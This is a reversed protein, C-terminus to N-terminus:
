KKQELVKPDEVSQVSRNIPYQNLNGLYWPSLMRYYSVSDAYFSYPNFSYNGYYVSPYTTNGWMAVCSSGCRGAGGMFARVPIPLGLILFVFLMILIKRFHKLLFGFTLVVYVIWYSSFATEPQVLLAPFMILEKINKSLVKILILELM